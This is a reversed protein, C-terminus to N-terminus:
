IGDEKVWLNYNREAEIISGKLLKECTAIRVRDFEEELLPEIKNVLKGAQRIAQDSHIDESLFLEETFFDVLKQRLEKNM